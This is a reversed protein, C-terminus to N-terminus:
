KAWTTAPSDGHFGTLGVRTFGSVMAAVTTGSDTAAGSRM